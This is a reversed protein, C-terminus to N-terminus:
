QFQHLPCWTAPETGALFAETAVRPCGPLALHGTDRDIELQVIGPPPTFPVNPRGALARKMFATWIPLASQAGSLGLVQNDDLGVWVVALLEPTFGVFWADRLDNTTGTKGAADLAFGAARASAATGENLVSRMMNTVLYTVAPDAVTRSKQAPLARDAGGSVVRSIARLPRQAGLTAFTTFAEAVELPTLEFVGLAISPYGRLPTKGLGTRTWMSAVTSFGAQEAVKIAAINRSLALARRLTIMGDYEGDYNGPTWDGEAATWTTPEDLVLSAPTVDTRGDRAAQDFAALYVFPKFVSGPQRRAGTVRNFQSQNYSRGGVLALVEGTRPDV